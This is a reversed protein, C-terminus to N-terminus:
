SKHEQQDSMLQSYIKQLYVYSVKKKHHKAIYASVDRWSYGEDRLSKIEHIWRVRILRAVKGERRPKKSIADRRMKTVQAAQELSMESRRSAATLTLQRKHLAYCLAAYTREAIGLHKYKDHHQRLLDAKLKHTDLREAETMKGYWRCLENRAGPALGTIKQLDDM